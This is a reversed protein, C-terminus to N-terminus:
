IYMTSRAKSLWWCAEPLIVMVHMAMNLTHLSGVVVHPQPQFLSFNQKNNNMEHSFKNKKTKHKQQNRIDLCDIWGELMELLPQLGSTQWTGKVIEAEAWLNKRLSELTLLCCAIQISDDKANAGTLLGTHANLLLVTVLCIAICSQLRWSYVHEPAIIICLKNKQMM